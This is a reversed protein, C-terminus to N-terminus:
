SWKLSFLLADKSSKIIWRNGVQLHTDTFNHDCWNTIKENSSHIWPDVVIETWGLGIYLGALIHTDIENSMDAGLEDLIQEQLNM